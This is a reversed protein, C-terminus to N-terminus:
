WIRGARTAGGGAPHRGRRQRQRSLPRARQILRCWSWRLGRVSAFTAAVLGPDTVPALGVFRVGDPFAGAVGAAVEIALRTKGVGGPGTLTVLRVDPRLVLERVAALERERGILLSAPEPLGLPSRHKRTDEAGAEVM